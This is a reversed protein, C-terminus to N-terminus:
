ERVTRDALEREQPKEDLDPDPRGRYLLRSVGTAAFAGLILAWTILQFGIQFILFVAYASCAMQFAGILLRAWGWYLLKRSLFPKM